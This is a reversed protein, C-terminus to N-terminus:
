YIAFLIKIVILNTFRNKLLLEVDLKIDFKRRYISIRNRRLLSTAQGILVQGISVHSQYVTNFAFCKCMSEIRPHSLIIDDTRDFLFLFLLLALDRMNLSFSKSPIVDLFSRTLGRM